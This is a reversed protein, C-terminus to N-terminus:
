HFDEPLTPLPLIRIGDEILARAEEYSARGHIARESVLGDHIKRAERPFDAGVDDSHELIRSRLEEVAARLTRDDEGLLPGPTSESSASPDKIEGPRTVAIAPAMIAKRVITEQCEPCSILGAKTQSEYAAGNRFWSIFEHGKACVLSFKIM